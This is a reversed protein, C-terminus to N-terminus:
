EKTLIYNQAKIGESSLVDCVFTYTIAETTKVIITKTEFNIEDSLIGTKNKFNNDLRTAQEASSLGDVHITYVLTSNASPEQAFVSLSIISLVTAIFKSAKNKM